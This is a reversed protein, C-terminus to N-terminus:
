ICKSLVNFISVFISLIEEDDYCRKGQAVLEVSQSSSIPERRLSHYRVKLDAITFADLLVDDIIYQEKTIFETLIIKM